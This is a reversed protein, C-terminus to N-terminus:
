TMALPLKTHGKPVGVIAVFNHSGASVAEDHLSWSVVNEGKGYAIITPRIVNYTVKKGFFEGVNAEAGGVKM